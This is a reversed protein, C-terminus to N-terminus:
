KGNTGRSIKALDFRNSIKYSTYPGPRVDFLLPTHTANCTTTIKSSILLHGEKSKVRHKELINTLKVAKGAFM